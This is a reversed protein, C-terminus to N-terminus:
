KKKDVAKQARAKFDQHKGTRDAHSQIRSADKKTMETKKTM